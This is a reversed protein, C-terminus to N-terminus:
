KNMGIDMQMPAKITSGGNGHEGGHLQGWIVKDAASMPHKHQTHLALNPHQHPGHGGLKRHQNPSNIVNSDNNTNSKKNNNNNGNGSSNNNGNNNNNAEFSGRSMNPSTPLSNFGSSLPQRRNQQLQFQMNQLQQMQQQQIHHQQQQQVHFHSPNHNHRAQQQRRSNEQDEMDELLRIRKRLNSFEDGSDKEVMGTNSSTNRRGNIGGNSGKNLGNSNSSFSSSPRKSPTVVSRESFPSERNADNVEQFEGICISTSRSKGNAAVGASNSTHSNTGDNVGMGFIDFDDFSSTDLSDVNKLMHSNSNLFNTNTSLKKNGLSKTNNNGNGSNSGHNNSNNNDHVSNVDLGLSAMGMHIGMNIGMNLNSLNMNSMDPMEPIGAFGQLGMGGSVNGNGGLLNSDSGFLAHQMFLEQDFLGQSNIFPFDMENPNANNNNSNTNSNSSNNSNANNNNASDNSKLERNSGHSNNTMLSSDNGADNKNKNNSNINNNSSLGNDSLGDLGDFDPTGSSTLSSTRLRQQQSPTLRQKSHNDSSSSAANKLKNSGRDVSASTKRAKTTKSPPSSSSSSASSSNINNTTSLRLPWPQDDSLTETHNNINMINNSNNSIGSVSKMKNTVSTENSDIGTISSPPTTNSSSNSQSRVHNPNGNNAKSSASKTSKIPDTNTATDNNNNITASVEKTFDMSIKHLLPNDHMNLKYKKLPEFYAQDPPSLVPSLMNSSSYPNAQEQLASGSNKRTASNATVDDLNLSTKDHNINTTVGDNGVSDFSKRSDHKKAQMEQAKIMRQKADDRERQEKKKSTIYMAAPGSPRFIRGKEATAVAQYGVIEAVLEYVADWSEWFVM